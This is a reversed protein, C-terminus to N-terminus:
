DYVNEVCKYTDTLARPGGEFIFPTLWGVSLYSLPASYLIKIHEDSVSCVHRTGPITLNWRYIASFVPSLGLEM